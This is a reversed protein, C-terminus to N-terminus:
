WVHVSPRRAPDPEARHVLRRIRLVSRSRGGLVVDAVQLLPHRQPWVCSLRPTLGTYTRVALLVAVVAPVADAAM